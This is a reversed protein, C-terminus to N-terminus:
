RGNTSLIKIETRRNLARGEEDQNTAIPKTAGLGKVHMRTFDIGADVLANRVSASRKESLGQNYAASGENDTHGEIQILLGPNEQLWDAVRYIELWSDPLLDAADFAFLLNNLRFADGVKTQHMFITDRQVQSTRANTILRYSEFNFTPAQVSFAMVTKLPLSTEFTPGYGSVEQDRGERSISWTANIVPKKSEADVAYVELWVVATPQASHPLGFEYISPLFGGHGKQRIQANLLGGSVYGHQGDPSVVLGFNDTYDNIPYGLNEPDSWTGDAQWVSKYLDLGGMGIHSDSAFYLTKGDAHLFPSFESGGGNINSPLITAKSWDQGDWRSMWINANSGMKKADRVFFLYQGDASLCPQTEWQPTNIASGMNKGQSWGSLTHAALYIDCSGFGDERECGAFAMRQEDGQVSVAGENLSTNISGPVRIPLGWLTDSSARVAYIDEDRPYNHYNRGTFYLTQQDGSISPFFYSEPYNEDFNEGQIGWPGQIKVPQHLHFCGFAANAQLRKADAVQADPLRELTLYSEWAKLSTQYGGTSLALRGLSFYGARASGSEAAKIFSYFAAVTDSSTAYLHGLALWAAAYDPAIKVAKILHKEAKDLNAMPMERMALLGNQFAKVASRSQAHTIFTISLGMLIFLLRKGM